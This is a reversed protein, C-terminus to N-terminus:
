PKPISSEPHFLEYTAVFIHPLLFASFQATVGVTRAESLFVDAVIHV